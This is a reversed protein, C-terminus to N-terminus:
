QGRHADKRRYVTKGGVEAVAGYNADLYADIRGWAAEFNARRVPRRSYMVLGEVQRRRQGARDTDFVAWAPRNRISFTLAQGDPDSATPTFTYSAGVVVSTAPTGSITPPRNNSSPAMVQVDFAPLLTQAKGDSVWVVVGRHMGVDAAAPTGSLLGTSTNFSAWAPKADIGFILADGDADAATPTFSYASGQNVTTTPTGSITPAHNGGEAIAAAEEEDGGCAALLIGLAVIAWGRFGLRTRGM